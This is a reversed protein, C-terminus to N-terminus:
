LNIAIEIDEGDNMRQNNLHLAMRESMRNFYQIGEQLLINHCATMLTCLKYVQSETNEIRLKELLAVQQSYNILENFKGNNGTGNNGTGNNCTGFQLLLSVPDQHIAEFPLVEAKQVMVFEQM